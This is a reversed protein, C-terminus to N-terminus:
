QKWPRPKTYPSDLPLIIIIIIIIIIIVIIIINIIVFTTLARLPWNNKM